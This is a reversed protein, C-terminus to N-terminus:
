SDEMEVGEITVGCGCQGCWGDGYTDETFAHSLDSNGEHSVRWTDCAEEAGKKTRHVSLVCYTSCDHYNGSEIEETVVWVRM